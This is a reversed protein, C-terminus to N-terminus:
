HFASVGTAAWLGLHGVTHMLGRSDGTAVLERPREREIPCRYWRIHLNRRVDRLPPLRGHDLRQAVPHM